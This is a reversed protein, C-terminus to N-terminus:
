EALRLAPHHWAAAVVVQVVAYQLTAVVWFAGGLIEGLRSVPHNGAGASIRRTTGGAFTGSMATKKGSHVTM